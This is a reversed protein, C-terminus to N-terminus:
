IQQHIISDDESTGETTKPLRRFINTIKRFHKSANTQGESCNQFIKLFRRFAFTILFTTMPINIYYVFSRESTRYRTLSEFPFETDGRQWRNSKKRLVSQLPYDVFQFFILVQNLYNRLISTKCPLWTAHCSCHFCKAYSFVKKGM